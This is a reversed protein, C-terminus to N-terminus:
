ANSARRVAGAELNDLDNTHAFNSPSAHKKGHLMNRIDKLIYKFFREVNVSDPYIKNFAYLLSGLFGLSIGFINWFEVVADSFSLFGLIVVIVDKAQGSVTQTLASNVATNWFISYNLVFALTSSMFLSLWFGFHSSYPSTMLSASENTYLLVVCLLPISILNNYFMFDFKDLRTTSPVMKESSSLKNILVLYLGTFVNYCMVIFYSFFDFNLDRYGAIFAGTCMIAISCQITVSPPKFSSGVASSLLMYELIMVFVVTTRRLTTYMPINVAKMAYMGLIMYALFSLALPLMKKFNTMSFDHYFMPSKQGKLSYYQKTLYLFLLSSVNQSLTLLNPCRFDYLSFAAKNFYILLISVIMYLLAASLVPAPEASAHHHSATTTSTNSTPATSAPSPHNLLPATSSSSTSIEVDRNSPSDPTTHASM